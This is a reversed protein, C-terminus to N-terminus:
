SASISRKDRLHGVDDFSPFPWNVETTWVYCAFVVSEDVSIKLGSYRIIVADVNPLELTFIGYQDRTKRHPVRRDVVSPHMVIEIM